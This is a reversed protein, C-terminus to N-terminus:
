ELVMMCLWWVSLVVAVLLFPLFPTLLLQLLLQDKLQQHHTACYNVPTHYM